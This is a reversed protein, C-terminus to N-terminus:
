QVMIKASMPKNGVFFNVVYIGAEIENPLKIMEKNEGLESTGLNETYVSRGNLDVINVVMDDITLTNFDMVVQRTDVSYGAKFSPDVKEESIGATSTIVHQSLYIMDGTTTGNDNAANSAVYFTVDGVNAGIAPADWTWIWTSQASTNSTSTHSVYHRTASTFDQTGGFGGDGTFSGANNNSADLAVASFGKKAPDSNMTLTVSYSNGEVYSTTPSIGDLVVLANENTGDLATGIHCQTCNNEGPAGTLGTQGGGAQKHINASLQGFEAVTTNQFSFLGASFILGALYFYNKKM